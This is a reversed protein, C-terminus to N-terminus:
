SNKIALYSHSVFIILVLIYIWLINIQPLINAELFFTFYGMPIICLIWVIFEIKNEFLFTLFSTIPNERKTHRNLKDMKKRYTESEGQLGNKMTELVSIDSKKYKLVGERFFIIVLAVPLIYFLSIISNQFLRFVEMSLFFSSLRVSSIILISAILSATIRNRINGEEPEIYFYLFYIYITLLFASIFYGLLYGLNPVIIIGSATVQEYFFYGEKMVQLPALIISFIVLIIFVIFPFGFVVSLIKKLEM